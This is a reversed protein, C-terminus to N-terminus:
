LGERLRTAFEIITDCHCARPVCWCGLTADAALNALAAVVERNDGAVQEALWERYQALVRSRESERTLVFPNALPGERWGNCARGCYVVGPSNPAMGRVNVVNM